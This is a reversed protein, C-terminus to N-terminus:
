MFMYEASRVVRTGVASKTKGSVARETKLTLAGVRWAYAVRLLSSCSALHHATCWAQSSRPEVRATFDPMTEGCYSAGGDHDSAPKRPTGRASARPRELLLSPLPLGHRQQAPNAVCVTPHFGLSTLLRARNRVGM